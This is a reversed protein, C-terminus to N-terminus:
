SPLKKSILDMYSSRDSPDFNTEAKANSVHWNIETPPTNKSTYNKIAINLLFNVVDKFSKREKLAIKKLTRELKQELSITTRHM